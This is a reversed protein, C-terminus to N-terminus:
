VLGAAVRAAAEGGPVCDDVAIESNTTESTLVPQSSARRDEGRTLPLRSPSRRLVSPRAAVTMGLM